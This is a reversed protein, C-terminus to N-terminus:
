AGAQPRLSWVEVQSFADPAADILIANVPEDADIRRTGCWLGDDVFVEIIGVDVFIRVDRPTLNDISARPTATTSGGVFELNMGGYVLAMEAQPHSFAVRFPAGRRAGSLQIEVIGDATALRHALAEGDAAIRERRLTTLAEIPPMHLRGDRWILRRPFTMSSPYDHKKRVDAWNAAWAIGVPGSACVFSQFAYCDGIFDLERRAIEDFRAGDFRGVLAFSPNRRGKVLQRHGILGFVLVHLGDGEGDLPVLCPCEAPVVRDLPERHLVGVFRWGEAADPAVTEYLLVLAASADAGGLLMSWGGGPKAFVYPDRLDRGFGPLPPPRDIVSTSPGARLTNPSVATMQGEPVSRGDERDTYFIRLGGEPRRIASGSFAGGTKTPDVLMAERPHLFVPLHRWDVLNESVAHGWHMTDWRRAHPYHQYFVHVRGDAEISGNPDNMWGFPPALHLRYRKANARARESTWLIRIGKDIVRAPHFAYCLSVVTADDDWEVDVDGSAALALETLLFDDSPPAQMVQAAGGPSRLTVRSSATADRAKQWLHLMEGAAIQASFGSRVGAPRPVVDSM